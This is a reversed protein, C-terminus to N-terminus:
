MFVDKVGVNKIGARTPQLLLEVKNTLSEYYLNRWTLIKFIGEYQRM